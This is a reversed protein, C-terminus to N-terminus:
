LFIYYNCLLGIKLTKISSTVEIVIVKCNETSYINKNYIYELKENILLDETYDKIQLNIKFSDNKLIM